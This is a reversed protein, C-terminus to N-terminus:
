EYLPRTEPNTARAFLEDMIREITHPSRRQKGSANYQLIINLRATSLQCVHKLYLENIEFNNIENGERVIARQLDPLSLKRM